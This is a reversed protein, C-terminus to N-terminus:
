RDGGSGSGPEDAVVTISRNATSRYTVNRLKTGTRRWAYTIVAPSSLLGRAAKLSIVRAVSADLHAVSIRGRRVAAAHLM